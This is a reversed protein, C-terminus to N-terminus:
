HAMILPVEAVELLDRTPGGIIAERFRSHGYAGMVMADAGNERVFRVLVDSVRPLTRSLISVEGKIGHRALMVCLMGGPDSREPSHGPPDVMVIDVVEAKKLMPIAKRIASLSEDSEDWAAVVRHFPKEFDAGEPPVILVASDTGFLGAEVASVQLTGKGPGYPRSAVILDSYRLLRACMADFGISSAVVPQVAARVPDVPLRGRAWAALEEVRERAEAVGTDLMVATAGMPAVEYRTPDIGMCHIDLHADERRAIALAAALAAEDCGADTVIMSISKYAM